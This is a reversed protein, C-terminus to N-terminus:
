FFFFDIESRPLQAPRQTRGRRAGGGATRRGWGPQRPPGRCRIGGTAVPGGGGGRCAVPPAPPSSGPLEPSASPAPGGGGKIQREGEANGHRDGGVRGEGRGARSGAASSGPKGPAPSPSPPLPSLARPTPTSTPPPPHLPSPSPPPPPPSFSARCLKRTAPRGRHGTSVTRSGAPAARLQRRAPLLPTGPTSAGSRARPECTASRSAGPTRPFSCHQRETGARM